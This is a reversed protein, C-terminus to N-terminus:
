VTILFFVTIIATMMLCIFPLLVWFIIRVDLVKRKRCTKVMIFFCVTGYIALNAVNAILLATCSAYEDIM